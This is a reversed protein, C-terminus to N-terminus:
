YVDDGQERRDRLGPREGSPTHIYFRDCVHVDPYRAVLSGSPCAGRSWMRDGSCWSPAPMRNIPIEFGKDKLHSLRLEFCGLSGSFRSRKSAKSAHAVKGLGIADALRRIPRGHSGGLFRPVTLPWLWNILAVFGETAPLDCASASTHSIAANQCLRLVGGMELRCTAVEEGRTLSAAGFM